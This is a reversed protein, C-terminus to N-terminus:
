HGQALTSLFGGAGPPLKNAPILNPFIEFLVGFNNLISNYTLGFSIQLDSGTRTILLSNIQSNVGFDYASSATIAYKASFPITIAGIVAKSNLPDIERYSLFYSTKDPRNYSAGIEFVRAGGEHPDFWGSSFLATRDGINWNWDYQIFNVVQGFDDRNAQPFLSVSVDLTMWDVIHEQGPFGRKTQWRQRIDLTVEEISDLTDIDNMVLKRLALLQPDFFGSTLMAANAPNFTSQLPYIDRMAQDSADDNLRDLQPLVYHSVNSHAWYYDGSLVIKHYIGDLNLLESHIDPYLKSFPISASVGGGDYIRNVGNGYIDQTYYTTDFVGYPVVRFAGASFPLALKQYFDFRGTNDAFDTPEFPPPPEHTPQLIGYGLSAKATYTFLDLLDQGLLYGDVKPLWEAETIWNRDNVEGLATWAWNNQQQKVYLFTEQNPGNVWLPNAYQDLFNKDSIYAFQGQVSFGQPMEQGNMNAQLRGRWDPHNYQEMFEPIQPASPPGFITLTGRNGGLIDTGSDNIVRSEVNFDYRGPIGFLSKSGMLNFDVGVAPGRISLEDANLTWSSGPLPDIGILDYLNWGTFLEFGFIRSYGISISHLPGLPDRVDGQLFPLWFVPVGEIHTVVNFGRFIMQDEYEPEGTDSKLVQKGFITKKLTHKEEFTGESMEVDLGPGYPTKSANAQIFGFQFLKANLKDIEPGIIHMPDTFLPQKIELDADLAVAVDRNVDYYAENCRLTQVSQKPPTGGFNRIVVNGSLYFEFGRASQNQGTKAGEVLDHTDGRTWVVVRDAEIDAMDKNTADTGPIHIIIGGSLVVAKEDDAMAYEKVQFPASSRPRISFQRPPGSFLPPKATGPPAPPAVPGSVGPPVPVVPVAAPGGPNAPTGPGPYPPPQPVITPPQVVQPANAPPGAPAPVAPVAPEQASIRQVVDYQPAAQKNPPPGQLGASPAAQGGRAALAHQYLSDEPMAKYQIQNKYSKLPIKGHTNLEFLGWPGERTQGGTELTVGGEAFFELHFVGTRKQLDEDVWLVAEPMRLKTDGQECYVKGKLLVIRKGQEQWTVIDDANVVIDRIDGPQNQSWRLPDQAILRAPLLVCALLGLVIWTTALRRKSWRKGM